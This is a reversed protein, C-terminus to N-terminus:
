NKKRKKKWCMRSNADSRARLHLNKLVQAIRPLQVRSIWKSLIWWLWHINKKHVKMYITCNPQIKEPTLFPPGTLAPTSSREGPFREILAYIRTWRTPQHLKFYFKLQSLILDILWSLNFVVYFSKFFCVFGPSIARWRKSLRWYRTVTRSRRKKKRLQEYSGGVEM